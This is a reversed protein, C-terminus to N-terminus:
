KWSSAHPCQRKMITNLYILKRSAHANYVSSFYNITLQTICLVQSLCCGVYRQVAEWELVHQPTEPQKINTGM